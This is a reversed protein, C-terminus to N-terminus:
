YANERGCRKDLGRFKYEKLCPIKRALFFRETKFIITLRSALSKAAKLKAQETRTYCPTGLSLTRLRVHFVFLWLLCLMVHHVLYGGDFFVVNAIRETKEARQWDAWVTLTAHCPFSTTRELINCCAQVKKPASPKSM